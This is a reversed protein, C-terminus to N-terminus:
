PSTWTGDGTVAQSVATISTASNVADHSVGGFIL